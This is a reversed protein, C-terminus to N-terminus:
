CAYTLKRLSLGNLSIGPSLYFRRQGPPAQRGMRGRDRSRVFAPSDGRGCAARTKLDGGEKGVKLAHRQVMRYAVDRAVGKDVLALLVKESFVTGGSKELNRKMNEPYVCLNGLVYTMRRLMFDLAITADPAIVREVSSHSIDREHWLPVNEMAAMRM